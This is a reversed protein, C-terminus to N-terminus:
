AARRAPQGCYPDVRPLNSLRCESENGWVGDAFPSRGEHIGFDLFHALRIAIDAAKVDACALRLPDV